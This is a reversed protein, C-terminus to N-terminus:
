PNRRNIDDVVGELQSRQTSYNDVLFAAGAETVGGDSAAQIASTAEAKTISGSEAAQGYKEIDDMFSPM